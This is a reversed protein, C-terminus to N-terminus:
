VKNCTPSFIQISKRVYASICLEGTETVWSPFDTLEVLQNWYDMCIMYFKWFKWLAYRNKFAFSYVTNDWFSTFNSCKPNPDYQLHLELGCYELPKHRIGIYPFRKFDYLLSGQLDESSCFIYDSVPMAGRQLSEADHQPKGSSSSKASRKAGRLKGPLLSQVEEILDDLYFSDVSDNDLEDRFELLTERVIDMCENDDLDNTEAILWDKLTEKKKQAEKEKVRLDIGMIPVDSDGNIGYLNVDLPVM